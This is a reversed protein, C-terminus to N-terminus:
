KSIYTKIKKLTCEKCLMGANNCIFSYYHAKSAHGCKSIIDFHYVKVTNYKAHKHFRRKIYNIYMPNM